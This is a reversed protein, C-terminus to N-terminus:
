ITKKGLFHTIFCSKLVKTKGPLRPKGLALKRCSPLFIDSTIKSFVFCLHFTEPLLKFFFFHVDFIKILEQNINLKVSALILLRGIVSIIAIDIFILALIALRSGSGTKVQVKVLTM